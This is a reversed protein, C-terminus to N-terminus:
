FPTAIMIICLLFIFLYIYILAGFVKREWMVVTKERRMSAFCPGSSLFIIASVQSRSTQAATHLCDRRCWGQLYCRQFSSRGVELQDWVHSQRTGRQRIGMVLWMRSRTQEELFLVSTCHGLPRRFWIIARVRPNKLGLVSVVAQMERGPLLHSGQCFSFPVCPPLLPLERVIGTLKCLESTRSGRGLQGVQEWRM